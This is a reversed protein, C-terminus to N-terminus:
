IAIAKFQQKAIVNGDDSWVEIMGEGYSVSMCDHKDGKKFIGFDEEWEVRYFQMATTEVIDWSEWTFPFAAERTRAPTGQGSM